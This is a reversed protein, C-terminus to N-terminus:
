RDTASKALAGITALVRKRGESPNAYVSESRIVEGANLVIWRCEELPDDAPVLGGFESDSSPGVAVVFHEDVLRKTAEWEMFYGLCWELRSRSSHNKDYVVVFLPIGRAGAESRATSLDTHPARLFFRDYIPAPQPAHAAAYQSTIVWQQFSIPFYRAALSRGRPTDLLKTEIKERDFIL